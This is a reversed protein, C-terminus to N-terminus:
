WPLIGKIFYIIMYFLSEVDDRWSQEYGRHANLSTYRATGTIMKDEWFKIHALTRDDIYKKSLGYDMLYITNMNAWNGVLFNDPKIDWHLLHHSHITELWTLAQILIM